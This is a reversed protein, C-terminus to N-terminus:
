ENHTEMISLLYHNTTSNLELLQRQLKRNAALTTKSLDTAKFARTISSIWSPITLTLSSIEADPDFIPMQKIEATSESPGQKNEKRESSYKNRRQLELLIDTSRICVTEPNTFLSTLKKIKETPLRSIDLITNHSITINGALIIKAIVANKKAIEDIAEAFVSYRYVTPGSIHYKRELVPSIPQTNEQPSDDMPSGKTSMKSRLRKDTLYIKGILYRQYEISLKKSDLQKFCSWIIAEERSSFTLYEITFPLKHRKCIEYQEFGELIINKWVMIPEKCGHKLLNKELLNKAETALHPILNYFENDRQLTNKKHVYMLDLGKSIMM